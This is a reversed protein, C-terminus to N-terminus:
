SNGRSKVFVEILLKERSAELLADIIWLLTNEITHTKAQTALVNGPQAWSTWGAGAVVVELLTTGVSLLYSLEVTL